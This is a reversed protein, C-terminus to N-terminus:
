GGGLNKVASEMAEAQTVLTDTDVPTVKLTSQDLGDFGTISVGVNGSRFMLGYLNLEVPQPLQESELTVNAQMQVGFDGYTDNAKAQLQITTKVGDSTTTIPGCSNVAEIKTALEAQDVKDADNSLSVAVQEGAANTFSRKAKNKDAVDNTTGLDKLAPCQEDMAKDQASSSDDTSTDVTWGAGLDSAAPLIAELDATTPRDDNAATTTSKEAATTTTKKATTDSSADSGSSSGCSAVLFALSAAVLAIKTTHPAKRM